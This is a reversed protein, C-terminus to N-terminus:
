ARFDGWFIGFFNRFRRRHEVSGQGWYKLLLIAICIPLTDHYLNTAYISSERQWSSPMSKCFYRLLFPLHIAISKLLIPTLPRNSEGSNLDGVPRAGSFYFSFFVFATMKPGDEYKRPGVRPLLNRLKQTNKNTNRPKLPKEARCRSRPIVFSSKEHLRNNVILLLHVFMDCRQQVLHSVEPSRLARYSSSIRHTLARKFLPYAFLPLSMQTTVPIATRHRRSALHQCHVPLRNHCNPRGEVLLPHRMQTVTRNGTRGRPSVIYQCAFAFM